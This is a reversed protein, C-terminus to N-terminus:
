EGRVIKDTWVLVDNEFIRVFYLGTPLQALSMTHTDHNAPIDESVLVRGAVDVVQIRGYKLSVPAIQVTMIGTTPNPFLQVKIDPSVVEPSSVFMCGVCQAVDHLAFRVCGNCNSELKFHGAANPSYILSTAGPVLIWVWPGTSNDLKYWQYSCGSTNPCPDQPPLVMDGQLTVPDNDCRYCPGAIVPVCTPEIVVPGAQVSGRCCDDKVVAYYIGAVSGQGPTLSSYTYSVSSASVISTHILVGDKYWDVVYSCNPGAIPSPTFSVSLAVQTDACPDPVATFSTIALADKVEIKFVVEDKPCVGNQKEVKYWTTQYLRNTNIVPNMTGWEPRPTFGGTGSTTSTFWHWMPPEGACADTYVLTADEGPCFPQDEFPIMDIQGKDANDNYVRITTTCTSPGCPGTLIVSYEHDYYCVSTPLNSPFTLTPPQYSLGTAGTIIQGQHYWQMTYNCLTTSPFSVQLAVPSGTQCFAPNTNIILCNVPDCLTITAANSVLKTTSCCRGDLTIEAYVQVCTEGTYQYPLLLLDACDPGASIQYPTSPWLTASCTKVFWRVQTIGCSDPCSVIPIYTSTSTRCVATDPVVPAIPPICFTVVCRCTDTGCYGQLSLIYNGPTIFNNTVLGPIVFNPTALLSGGLLLNPGTLQWDVRAPNCSAPGQCQFSSTLIFNSSQLPIVDGCHVTQGVRTNYTLSLDFAGCTCLTDCTEKIWTGSCFCSDAAGPCLTSLTITYSGPASVLAPPFYLNINSSSFGSSIVGGPGHLQWNVEACDQGNADVCGFNGTIVVSDPTCPLAPLFTHNCGIVNSFGGSNLTIIGPTCVCAPAISCQRFSIDDLAYDNADPGPTLNRIEILASASTATWSATILVWTDPLEPLTVATSVPSGNIWVQLQPDVLNLPSAWLNNAYFCLKYGAGVTVTKTQRWGVANVPTGSGNVALFRDTPGPVTHGVCAWDTNAATVQTSTLVSYNDYLVAGLPAVYTHDNTFGVNGGSFDGNTVLNTGPTGGNPCNCSDSSCNVTVIFICPSPNSTSNGAMDTGQCTVTTQGCPFFDGPQHSCTLTTMPCNDTVVPSTWTATAGNAGAAANITIAPPCNTLVPKQTDTVTLTFTCNQSRNGCDDVAYCTITNAGKPFQTQPTIPVLAAPPTGVSCVFTLSQDCNDTGTPQLLTGTYYCLGPNAVVTANPPCVISPPLNDVMTISQKCITDNDCGNDLAKTAMWTRIIMRDCPVFGVVIDSFTVTPVSCDDTATAVGTVAPTTPTGCAVSINPPCNIVPPHNAVTVTQSATSTSGDACTATVCFTYTGCGVQVNPNTSTQGDCWQYTIPQVGTSTNTLQYHGCSDLATVTFSAKCPNATSFCTRFSIDDLGFDNGNVTANMNVLCVTVSTNTGSSWTECYQQWICTAPAQFGVGVPVNNIYLQLQAPSTGTLSTVWAGFLYTTNPTVTLTQCWVNTSTNAAGNVVMMNGTGAAHGPCPEFAQSFVHPNSGIAYQGTLLPTVSNFVYNTSFGGFTSFDGNTVLNTGPTSGAPCVCPVPVVPCVVTIVFSCRTTNGAMDTATYTVTSAGNQFTTGSASTNGSGTTAGTIVYSVALMPCNDSATPAFGNVVASCIGAPNVTGPVSVSAPCTITPPWSDVIVLSFSCPLSKNGCRDTAECKITSSGKPFQTQPTIIATGQGNTVTCTIIPLTDCNDTALLSYPSGSYFCQGPNTSIMNSIPCNTIVPKISDAVTVTDAATSTTGDACTATVCFIHPGCGLQVDLNASTQGDCWQYTIPQVGTSTSTVQYHGCNDLATATFSAKCPNPANTCGRFSIDDLGFDNGNVTTNLNVLCITVSTNTGSFWTECYQKWTCTSPAQFGVGLSVNNIYLQLQAPSVGTLSTVWAGFLYTTNPTVTLTQCWVTTSINAAGNVVLMNGTGAAHGPCPEFAQNFVQPNSGIAYQGALLPATTNLVYNSSFGGSTSFNGNTVLNTSPASGAPCVCPTPVPASCARFSIDDVAFDNGVIASAGLRIEIPISGSLNATWVAALSVWVDPIEPLTVTAVQLNNIWLQVVPDAYNKSPIVLNNVYACFSYQQGLQVTVTNRWAINSTQNNGDVILVKGLPSTFTHNTAAWQSNATFIQNSQLVSHKGLTGSGLLFSPFGSFFGIDGQEFNGNTTLEPGQSTGAPCCGLFTITTRCAYNFLKSLELIGNGNNMFSSVKIEYDDNGLAVFRLPYAPGIPIFGGPPNLRVRQSDLQVATWGPQTIVWSAIKGSDVSIEIREFCNAGSNQVVLLYGCSDLQATVPVVDTYLSDFSCVRCNGFNQIAQESPSLDISAQGSAPVSATWGDQAAERIVYNGVPLDNFAYSGDSGTVQEGILNGQADRLSITWGSLLPQNTYNASGCEQYKVGSISADAAASCGSLPFVAQCNVGGSCNNDYLITLSPNVGLPLCFTIPVSAGIPIIGSSHSVIIETPDMITDTWGNAADVQPNVFFGENLRLRFQSYCDSSNSIRVRYCCPQYNEVTYSIDNCGGVQAAAGTAFFLELLIVLALTTLAKNQLYNKM